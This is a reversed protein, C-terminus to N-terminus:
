AQDAYYKALADHFHVYVNHFDFTETHESHTEKEIYGKVTHADHCIQKKSSTSIIFGNDAVEVTFKLGSNRTKYVIEIHSMDLGGDDKVVWVVSRSDVDGKVLADFNYGSFSGLLHGDRAKINSVTISNM